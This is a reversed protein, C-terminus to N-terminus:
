ARAASLPVCLVVTTGQGPGGRISLEGGFQQAREQMGLLGLSERARLASQAIGIGDDTVTLALRQASVQLQVGVSGAGAHRAINTLREQFIRFVATSLEGGLDVQAAPLKVRCRIGMRKQFEKAQWGIAAVLGMGDLIEPRMGTAIRRVVLVTSDILRRMTAAKRLLAKQEKGLHKSLWTVDMKLGTLVQGLEDHVERAIRAREEERISVLRAALARLQAESERLREEAAKREAVEAALAANQRYMEVFVAVKSRLVQAVVPKVLYDVAGVEYGRFAVDLTESVGTLFIIPIHRSRERTRITRATEFGDLGPMRVDLVIVAPDHDLVLRLAEEGSRACLLNQGLPALLAQLALLSKPEDDVLLVDAKLDNM